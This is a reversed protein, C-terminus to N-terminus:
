VYGFTAFNTWLNNMIKSMKYEEDELKLEPYYATNNFQYVLDNLHSVGVHAFNLVNFDTSLLM